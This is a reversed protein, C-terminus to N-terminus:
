EEEFIDEWMEEANNYSKYNEPHALIDECEMRALTNEDILLTVMAEIKEDPMKDIYQKILERSYTM